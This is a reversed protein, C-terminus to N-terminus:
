PSYQGVKGKNPWPTCIEKLQACTTMTTLKGTEVTDLLMTEISLMEMALVDNMREPIFPQRHYQVAKNVHWKSSTLLTLNRQWYQTTVSLEEKWTSHLNSWSMINSIIINCQSVLQREQIDHRIISDDILNRPFLELYSTRQTMSHCITINETAPFSVIGHLSLQAPLGWASPNTDHSLLCGSPPVLRCCTLLCQQVESSAVTTHSSHHSPLLLLQPIPSILWM